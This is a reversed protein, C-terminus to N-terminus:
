KSAASDLVLCGEESLYSKRNAPNDDVDDKEDLVRVRVFVLVGMSSVARHDAKDALWKFTDRLEPKACKAPITQAYTSEQNRQKAYARPSRALTANRCSIDAEKGSKPM